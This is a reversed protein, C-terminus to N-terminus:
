TERPVPKLLLYAGGALFVPLVGCITYAIPWGKAVAIYSLALPGLAVGLLVTAVICDVLAFSRVRRRSLASVM